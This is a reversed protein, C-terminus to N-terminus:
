GGEKGDKRGNEKGAGTGKEGNRGEGRQVGQGRQGAGAAPDQGGERGQGSRLSGNEKEGQGPQSPSEQAQPPGGRQEARRAPEAKKAEGGAAEGGAAPKEPQRETKKEAGRLLEQVKFHKEKELTALSKKKLEEIDVQLGKREANLQLLYRGASLGREQAQKRLDPPAEEVIVAAEAGAAQLSEEIARSLRSEDPLPQKGGGKVPTVTTLIVNEQGPVIYRAAVAKEVLVRLAESLPLGRVAAGALLDEGEGNLGRAQCVVMQRNVGLELSPNIDLGVYAVAQTNGYFLFGTWVFLLLCAAALAIKRWSAAVPRAQEFAIEEGPRIGKPAPAIERFEGQPTLVICTNKKVEM